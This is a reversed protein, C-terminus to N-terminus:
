GIKNNIKFGIQEEIFDIEKVSRGTAIGLQLKDKLFVFLEKDKSAVQRSDKVFTGDLDTVLLKNEM